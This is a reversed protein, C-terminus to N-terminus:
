KLVMIKKVVILGSRENRIFLLHIGSSLQSVDVIGEIPVHDVTIETVGTLGVVNISSFQPLNKWVLSNGSVYAEPLQSQSEHEGAHTPALVYTRFKHRHRFIEGEPSVVTVTVHGVTYANRVPRFVFPLRYRYSSDITFPVPTLGYDVTLEGPRWSDDVSIDIVQWKDPNCGFFSLGTFDPEKSRTEVGVASAVLYLGLISSEFNPMQFTHHLATATNTNEVNNRKVKVRATVSTYGLFQGVQAHKFRLTSCPPLMIPLELPISEFPYESLPFRAESTWPSSQTSEFEAGVVEITDPGPNVLDFFTHQALESTTNACVRGLSTTWASLFPEQTPVLVYNYPVSDVQTLSDQKRNWEFRLYGNYPAKTSGSEVLKRDLRLSIPWGIAITDGAPIVISTPRQYGNPWNIPSSAFFSIDDSNSRQSLKTIRVTSQGMNVVKIQAEVQYQVPEGVNAPTLFQLTDLLVSIDSAFASSACVAMATILALSLTACRPWLFTM